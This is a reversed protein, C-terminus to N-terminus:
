AAVAQASRQGIAAEARQKIGLLTKRQMVFSGPEIFGRIMLTNPLTSGYDQRARVILRMTSEDIEKLFWVWSSNLGTNPMTDGLDIPEGTRMDIATHWLFVRDPEIAAVTFGMGPALPVMDGVALHQLEPIIRWASCRDDDVSGAIGLIRHIFDYSYWGARKYGIQVLWPWIEAASTRITIAHTYEMKPHPVLDDGPLSRHVDADTAGWRLLRPRIVFWYVFLLAVPLIVWFVPSGNGLM